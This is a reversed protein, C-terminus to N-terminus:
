KAPATPPPFVTGGEYTFYVKRQTNSVFLRHTRLFDFGLLVDPHYSRDELRTGTERFGESLGSSILMTPNKITEEGIQFSDFKHLGVDSSRSNGGTAKGIAPPTIGFFEAVKRGVFTRTAGTDLTATFQSGNISVPIQIADRNSLMDVVDAKEPAWYALVADDCNKIQFFKIENAKFNLEFDLKGFFDFGLVGAFDGPFGSANVLLRKTSLKVGGIELDDFTAQLMQMEGASAMARYPAEEISLGAKKVAKIDFITRWAGTDALLRIPEGRLRGPVLAQNGHFEIPLKGVDFIQCDAHAAGSGLLFAILAAAFKQM